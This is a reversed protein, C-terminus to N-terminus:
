RKMQANKNSKLGFLRLFKNIRKKTHRFNPITTKRVKSNQSTSTNGHCSQETSPVETTSQEPSWNDAIHQNNEQASGNHSTGTNESCFKKTSPVEATHETTRDQDRPCNTLRIKIVENLCRLIQPTGEKALMIPGPSTNEQSTLDSAIQDATNQPSRDQERKPPNRRLHEMKDHETSPQESAQQANKSQAVRHQVTTSQSTRKQILGAQLAATLFM